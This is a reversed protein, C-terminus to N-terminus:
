PTTGHKRFAKQRNKDTEDAQDNLGLATYIRHAADYYAIAPNHKGIELLVDGINRLVDAEAPLDRLLRVLGIAKMYFELAAMFADRQVPLENAEWGWKLYIGGMACLLRAQEQPNSLEESLTCAEEYCRLAQSPEGVSLYSNGLNSLRTALGRRDNLDRAIQVSEQHHSIARRTKGLDDYVLGLNGLWIGRGRLDDITAALELAQRIHALAEEFRKLERLINGINGLLGSQTLHDNDQRALDLARNFYTLAQEQQNLRYYILALNGLHRGAAGLDQAALAMEVLHQLADIASSDDGDKLALRVQRLLRIQEQQIRLSDDNLM